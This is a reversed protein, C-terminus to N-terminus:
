KLNKSNNIKWTHYEEETCHKWIIPMRKWCKLAIISPMLTNAQKLKLSLRISDLFKLFKFLRLIIMMKLSNFVKKIFNTLRKLNEKKSHKIEKIKQMQLKPLKKKMVWKGNKNLKIKSILFNLKFTCHQTQHFEQLHAEKAMLTIQHASLPQEKEEKWPLLDKMGVKLSEERVWILNLPVTETKTLISSLEM